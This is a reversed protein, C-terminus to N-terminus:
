GEQLATPRVIVRPGERERVIVESGATVFGRDCVVDIQRADNIWEDRFMAVGGPRLDTYAAGIMGVSPWAADLSERARDEGPEPTQGVATQLVLRNFYPLQPLYRSFWFWLVLSGLAGCLTIITGQRVADWTGPLVPLIGAGGPEGPVFTMVLGALILSIGSIGAAGFGPIVFIELALLVVGVLIITVELWSAWGTMLPVGLLTALSCVCVVEPAGTGPHSLSIYATSLFVMMLIGRLVENNLLRIITESTSTPYTAVISVEESAACAEVDTSVYAALGLKAALEGSITLLSQDNNVPDPVGAVPTWRDSLLKGYTEADVFKKDGTPSQVYHVARGLTVMSQVLLPDHHNRTASDYFEALIPGEAKARETAQLQQDPVIPACDGIMATSEIVIHDCAIAILAGASVAKRHVFAVTRIRSAKEKIFRSIDLAPKVGGGWTDIKLIVVTVGQTEASAYRERLFSYSVDSIEGSLEVVAAREPSSPTAPMQAFSVGCLFFGLLAVLPAAFKMRRMTGATRRRPLPAPM